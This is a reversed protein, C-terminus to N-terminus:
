SVGQQGQQGQQNGLLLKLLAGLGGIGASAATGIGPGALAGLGGGLSAGLNQLFGQQGPMFINEFQPQLGLGLLSLLLQQQQGQNAFDYQSQLGALGEELGAGASGLAARFDSSGQNGMATFREALSPITQTNFQTRAQQAIPAFNFGQQVQPLLQNAANGANNHLGLQQASLRPVQKIQDQTGILFDSIGAM